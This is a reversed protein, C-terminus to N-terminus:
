ARQETQTVTVCLVSPQFSDSRGTLTTVPLPSLIPLTASLLTHSAWQSNRNQM